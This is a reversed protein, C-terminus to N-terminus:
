PGTRYLHQAAEAMWEEVVGVGFQDLAETYQGAFGMTTSSLVLSGVARVEEIAVVVVAAAVMEVVTVMGVARGEVVVGAKGVAGVKRTIRLGPVSHGLM